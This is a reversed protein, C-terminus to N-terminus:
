ENKIGGLLKEIDINTLSDMEEQLHYDKASKDNIVKEGNITPLYYLKRYDNIERESKELNTAHINNDSKLTAKINICNGMVIDNTKM